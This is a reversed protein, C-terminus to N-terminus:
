KRQKALAARAPVPVVVLRLRVGVRMHAWAPEVEKDVVAAVFSKRKEM